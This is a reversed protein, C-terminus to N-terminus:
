CRAAIVRARRQDVCNYFEDVLNSCKLIEKPHEQYCKIVKDTNELCPQITNHISLKKKDENVYLEEVAKKYEEDIIQNVRLHNKELNDLRKQWYQDQTLLEQEKQQQIELATLTLQPYYYAPYGSPADGSQFSPSSVAKNPFPPMLTSSRVENGSQINAENVKQTLRQVISNSVKIVDIEEENNITLRRASQGAGM